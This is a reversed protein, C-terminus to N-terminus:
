SSIAAQLYALRYSAIALEWTHRAALSRGREGMKRALRSDKLVKLLAHVLSEPDEPSVLLGAGHAHISDRLSPLDLAVVPKGYQWAEYYVLGFSEGESPVCLLTCAALADQKDQESLDNADLVHEGEGLPLGSSTPGALVLWAEPMAARIAPFASLLRFIGKELTKRGLFLILPAGAPIGHRERFRPGQGGQQRDVGHLIVSVKQPPIGLRQLVQRESESHALIRDARRYLRQDIWSDGWQGPHLAPEVLFPVGLRRAAAAAAFGLLEPGSGLYHVMQFGRLESRLRPEMVANHLAVAVPFTRPRWILRYLPLWLIREWGRLPLVCTDVGANEFRRGPESARFYAPLPHRHRTFRAVLRCHDGSAHLQQAIRLGLTELGGLLPWANITVLAIKM